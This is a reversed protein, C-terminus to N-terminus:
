WMGVYRHVLDSGEHRVEQLEMSQLGDPEETWPVRWTLINSPTTMEKELTDEQKRVWPDFGCRRLRRSQCRPNKVVLAVQSAGESGGYQTLNVLGVTM